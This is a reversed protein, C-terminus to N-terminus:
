SRFFLSLTDFRFSPIHCVSHSTFLELKFFKIPWGVMWKKYSIWLYNNHVSILKLCVTKFNVWHHLTPQCRGHRFITNTMPFLRGIRTSLYMSTYSLGVSHFWYKSTTSFSVRHTTLYGAVMPAIIGAISAGTNSIGWIVGAFQFM